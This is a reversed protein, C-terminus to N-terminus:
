VKIRRSPRERHAGMSFTMTQLPQLGRLVDATVVPRLEHGLRHLTPEELGV